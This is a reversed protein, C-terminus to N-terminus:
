ATWSALRGYEVVILSQCNDGGWDEPGDTWKDTSMIGGGATLTHTQTHIMAVRVVGSVVM